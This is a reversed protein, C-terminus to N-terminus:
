PYILIYSAVSWPRQKASIGAACSCRQLLAKREHKLVFWARSYTRGPVQYINLHIVPLMAELLTPRQSRGQRIGVVVRIYWPVDATGPHPKKRNINVTRVLITGQM